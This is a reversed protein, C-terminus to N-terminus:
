NVAAFAERMMLARGNENRENQRGFAGRDQRGLLLLFENARPQFAHEINRRLADRRTARMESDAAAAVILVNRVLRLEFVFSFDQALRKAADAADFPGALDRNVCGLGPAIAIARLPFDAREFIRRRVLCRGGLKVLEADAVEACIGGRETRYAIARNKRREQELRQERQAVCECGARQRALQAFEFGEAFADSEFSSSM